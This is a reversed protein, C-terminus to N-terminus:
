KKTQYKKLAIKDQEDTAQKRTIKKDCIAAYVVVAIILLLCVGYLGIAVWNLVTWVQPLYTTSSLSAIIRVIFYITPVCLLAGIVWYLKKLLDKNM